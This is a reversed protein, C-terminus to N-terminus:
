GTGPRPGLRSRAARIVCTDHAKGFVLAHVGAGDNAGPALASDFRSPVRFRPPVGGTASSGVIFTRRSLKVATGRITKRVVPRRLNQVHREGGHARCNPHASLNWM